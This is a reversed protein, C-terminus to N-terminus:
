IILNTIFIKYIERSKTEIVSKKSLQSKDLGAYGYVKLKMDFQSRM